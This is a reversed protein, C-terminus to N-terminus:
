PKIRAIKGWPPTVENNNIIWLVPINNAISENPFPAYGDTLIIISSPPEEHKWHHNVYDFICDFSTGGGGFPRIIKFEDITTFPQPEVVVADFFGLYGQLKGDFQEIASYIESYCTTIMHDSMSGSTDIMFLINKVLEQPVNYDPLFFDYDGFRRDPPSFSYDVIEEQIFTNLITKWDLQGGQRLENILRQACLPVTGRTNSPDEIEVITSADLVRNEWLASLEEDADEDTEWRSHNDFSGEVKSSREVKSDGCAGSGMSSGNADKGNADKGNADNKSKGSSTSKDRASGTNSGDGAKNGSGGNKNKPQKRISSLLMEYVEEATYLYGEKKDPALHMFPEGHISIVKLNDGLSHAINSNVVIDCAINFLEPDRENYRFCHQLAIHLIEHMMVFDLEDDDLGDLFSPSFYIREGDTCATEITEDINFTIHSLLLGYFPQSSLIRMKSILMRKSWEAIRTKDLAM